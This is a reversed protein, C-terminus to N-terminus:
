RSDISWPENMDRDLVITHGPPFISRAMCSIRVGIIKRRMSRRLSASARRREDAPARTDVGDSCSTVASYHSMSRSTSQMSATANSRSPVSMSVAGSRAAAASMISDSSPPRGQRFVADGAEDAVTDVREHGAHELLAAAHRREIRRQRAVAEVSKRCAKHAADTRDCGCKGPTTGASSTSPFAPSAKHQTVFLSLRKARGKSSAAPSRSLNAPSATRRGDRPDCASDSCTARRTRDAQRRAAAGTTCRRNETRCRPPGHLSTGLRPRPDVSIAGM